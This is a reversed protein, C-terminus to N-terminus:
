TGKNDFGAAALDYGGFTFWSTEGVDPYGLFVSFMPLADSIIKQDIMNQM